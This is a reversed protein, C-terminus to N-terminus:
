TCAAAVYMGWAVARKSYVSCILLSMWLFTFSCKGNLRSCSQTFQAFYCPCAFLFSAAHMMWAVAANLLNLLSAPVDVLFQLLM